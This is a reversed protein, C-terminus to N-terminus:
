TGGFIVHNRRMAHHPDDAVRGHLGTEKGVGCRWRAGRRRLLDNLVDVPFRHGTKPRVLGQATRAFRRVDAEGSMELKAVAVWSVYVVVVRGSRRMLRAAVSWPTLARRGLVFRGRLSRGAVTAPDIRHRRHGSVSPQSLLEVRAQSSMLFVGGGVGWGGGPVRFVDFNFRRVRIFDGSM